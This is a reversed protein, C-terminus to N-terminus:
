HPFCLRSEEKAWPIDIDGYVAHFDEFGYVGVQFRSNGRKLLSEINERTFEGIAWLDFPNLYFGYHCVTAAIHIYPRLKGGIDRIVGRKSDNPLYEYYFVPLGEDVFQGKVSRLKTLLKEDTVIIANNNPGYDRVSLAYADGHGDTAVVANLALWQCPALMALLEEKLEKWEPTTSM